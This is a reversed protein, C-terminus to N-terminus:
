KAGNFTDELDSIFHKYYHKMIDYDLDHTELINM